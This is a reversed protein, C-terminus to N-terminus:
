ATEEETWEDVVTAPASDNAVSSNDQDALANLSEFPPLSNSHIPLPSLSFFLATSCVGTYGNQNRWVGPNKLPSNCIVKETLQEVVVDPNSVNVNVTRTVETRTSTLGTVQLGPPETVNGNKTNTKFVRCGYTFTTDQAYTVDQVLTGGTFTNVTKFTGFINPSQGNRGQPGVYNPGVSSILQGGPINTITVVSKVYEAGVETQITATNLEARFTSNPDPNVVTTAACIAQLEDVPVPVAAIAATPFAVPTLSTACLALMTALKIKM